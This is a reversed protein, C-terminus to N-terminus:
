DEEEEEDEDFEVGCYPCYLSDKPIEEGCEGCEDLEVQKVNEPTEVKKVELRQLARAIVETVPIGHRKAYAKARIYDEERIKTQPTIKPM